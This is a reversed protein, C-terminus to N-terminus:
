KVDDPSMPTDDVGPTVLDGNKWMGAIVLDERTYVGYGDPSGDKWGGLYTWANHPGVMLGQGEIRGDVWSGVYSVQKNEDVNFIEHFEGQGNPRGNIVDGTYTQFVTEKIIWTTTGNGNAIGNVCPGSWHMVEGVVPTINAMKCNTNPDAIWITDDAFAFNGALLVAFLITKM